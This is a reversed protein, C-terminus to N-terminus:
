SSDEMRECVCIIKGNWPSGGDNWIDLFLSHNPMWEDPHTALAPSAACKIIPCWCWVSGPWQWVTRAGWLIWEESTWTIGATESEAVYFKCWLNNKGLILHGQPVCQTEGDQQKLWWTYQPGQAFVIGHIPSTKEWPFLPNLWKFIKSSM